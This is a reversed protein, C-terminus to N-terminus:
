WSFGLTLKLMRPPWEQGLGNRNGFNPNANVPDGAWTDYDTWNHWDFANLLDARFRLSMDEGIAFEKQVALDLQKSAIAYGPTFPDWFCNNFDPVDHCNLAEKPKGSALALKMSYTFGGPGDIFGSVVLRHRPLGLSRSFGNIGASPYDGNFHEDNEYANRMNERANSYTYAFNLNWPSAETYPKELSVLVSDLKTEIGNDIKFFGGYGPIGQGWPACGWTGPGCNPDRFSGNSYRGGHTIIIGDHSKVHLLTVSSNWQVGFMGFINRMGISFQDSYPTDLDNHVLNTEAGLNPNAAVLAALNAPDLYSPNWAICTGGLTCPHGPVNFQFEYSPFTSKSQELALYDWLNRDYSRGAGGFIVHRQDADIDYSFGLRPQFAGKFAERNSGDSIYDEIDYDANDINTWGRLATALGAPTEYDLYGPSVEYDWRVGLNFLLHENVEWDDQIYLGLQRNRSTINRDGGGTVAGFQVFFPVALNQNIDYFFQPNYPQQEFANIEVLKFKGGMKITHSGNWDFSNFTIDDQIAWGKQGKDQYDRGGGSNLIVQGRDGTTLIYGPAITAARPGFVADEYTLHFDNLWNDTTWQWRLDVRTDEGKKLTGYEDTNRGGIGTLEEETRHKVSFEFLHDQGVSWDVKAFYLDEEFPSTTTATALGQFQAPLDEITYPSLPVFSVPQEFDKHEYTFFFHAVDKIIPGGVAFGYHKEFNDAEAGAAIEAPRKDRLGSDTYDIFVDGHFENTGSKTVAVIAASSLQDLEAKYNSTIVKYEGIGLQPFPNGRSSDQGTIGGKVVYNKQGVGDIFVNIANSNQGGGRLKSSTGNSDQSFAMGPVTDAFALFNRSGQPLSAIQKETIYTAVESTKTEPLAVGRVVVADLATSAGSVALPVTATQGVQLTLTRSTTQGGASVDVRYVGPPLGNLVYAGNAQATVSRSFGTDINTATVTAGGAPAANATVSGRLTASTSQALALPSLTALCGALACALLTPTPRRSRPTHLRPKM